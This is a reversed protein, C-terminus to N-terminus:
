LWLLLLLWVTEHYGQVLRNKLIESDVPPEELLIPVWLSWSALDRLLAQIHGFSGQRSTVWCPHFWALFFLSLGCSQSGFPCFVHSSDHLAPVPTDLYSAELSTVRGAEWVVLETAIKVYKMHLWQVIFEGGFKLFSKWVPPMNGEPLTDSAASSSQKWLAGTEEGPIVM